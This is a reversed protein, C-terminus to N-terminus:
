KDMDKQQQALKADIKTNTTDLRKEIKDIRKKLRDEMNDMADLLKGQNREVAEKILDRLAETLDATWGDLRKKADDKM